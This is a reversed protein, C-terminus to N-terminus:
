HGFGFVAGGEEGLGSGLVAGGFKKNAPWTRGLPPVMQYNATCACSRPAFVSVFSTCSEVCQTRFEGSIFHHEMESLSQFPEVSVCLASLSVM